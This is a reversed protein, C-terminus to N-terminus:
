GPSEDGDLLGLATARAVAAERSTAGLKRYLARSHTKVTNVSLFLQSGIERQSLDSALLRLVSLEAASPAEELSGNVLRGDEIRREVRAALDMLVGADRFRKLGAIARELDAAARTLRGRQARIDALVLLAYLHSADRETQRRLREGLVAEREADPLRGSVSLAAALALRALGGSGTEAIESASAAVLAQRAKSESDRPVGIEAEVLALTSLAYVYGHPRAPAEPRDVAEQAALRAEALEGSLFLLFGLNALAPVGIEDVERGIEATVRAAAVAAGVDDTVSIVLALGLGAELYPTWEDPREERARTALAVFRRREEAERGLLGSALAGVPALIPSELIRAPPLEGLWRLLTAQRGTRMLDNHREVLMTAVSEDDGAAHAHELAEEIFGHDRCWASARLHLLNAAAPDVLGLELQLLEGFLHHYRFWEGHSDLGILFLNSRALDAILRASGTRDLVADCLAGNFRGLISTRLLFNRTTPELTDLVEGTLYDAVHRHDGHFDRVGASPDELTRLWLAALYLGAPWGETRDVLMEVDGDTLAIREQGVVLERAEGITFALEGARIEGLAGRARLRGLAIGPDSRTTAVIRAHPPLREVAHEFSRLCAASKLTHLDDLVLALPQGFATIGNVLEDVAAEPSAGAARLRSLAGRGLGSRIRDVATAVYTWLRVPDDDAADMSVWAIATDAQAGWSQALVTKGFGVPADVLTLATSSLEDLTRLLRPRAVLEARGRPPLLKTEILPPAAGSGSQRSV